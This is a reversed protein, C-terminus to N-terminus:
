KRKMAKLVEYAQKAKPDGSEMAHLLKSELIVTSQHLALGQDVSVNPSSRVVQLSLVAKEYDGQKLAESAAAANQKIAGSSSAFAQDLQSAAQQPTTAPKLDDDGSKSCGSFPTSMLICLLAPVLFKATKM